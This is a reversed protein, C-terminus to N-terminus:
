ASRVGDRVWGGLYAPLVLLVGFGVLLPLWLAWLGDNDGRPATFLALLFQPAALGFAVAPARSKGFVLGLVTAAAIMIWWYASVRPDASQEDKHPVLPFWLLIGVLVCVVM